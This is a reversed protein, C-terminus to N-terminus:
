LTVFSTIQPKDLNMRATNSQDSVLNGAEEDIAQFHKMQAERKAENEKVRDIEKGLRGAVKRVLDRNIASEPLVHLQYSLDAFFTDSIFRTKRVKFMELVPKPKKSSAATVARGPATMVMENSLPRDVNVPWLGSLSFASKINRVGLGELRVRSYYEFVLQESDETELGKFDLSHYKEKYAAKTQTFISSQVPLLVHSASPVLHLLHVDNLACMLTFEDSVLNSDGDLILIRPENEGTPATQPLFLHELWHLSIQAKTDHENAPLYQWDALGPASYDVWVEMRGTYKFFLLPDLPKGSFSVCEIATVPGHRQSTTEANEPSNVGSELDLEAIVWRNEGKVTKVVPDEFLEFLEVLNERRSGNYRREARASFKTETGPNRACFKKIWQKGLQDPEHSTRQALQTALELAIKHSLPRGVKEQVSIWNALWQEQAPTLKQMSQNAVSRSPGGRRRKDLTQPNLNYKLAVSYPTGGNRIEQLAKQVADERVPPM